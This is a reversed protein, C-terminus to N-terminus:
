QKDTKLNGSKEEAFENALLDLWCIKTLGSITSQMEKIEM